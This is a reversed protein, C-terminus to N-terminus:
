LLMAQCDGVVNGMQYWSQRRVFKEGGSLAQQFHRPIYVLHSDGEVHLLSGEQHVISRGSFVPGRTKNWWMAQVRDFTRGRGM